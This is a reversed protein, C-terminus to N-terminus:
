IGRAKKMERVIKRYEKALADYEFDYMKKPSTFKKLDLEDIIGPGYKEILGKRYGHANGELYKNCHACQGNVNREDFYLGAYTASRPYYHGAQWYGEGNPYAMLKNCSICNGYGNPSDRLRIFEAFATWLKKKASAKPM